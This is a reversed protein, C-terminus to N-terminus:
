VVDGRHPTNPGIRFNPDVRQQNETYELRELFHGLTNQADDILRTFDGEMARGKGPIQDGWAACELLLPAKFPMERFIRVFAEWDITGYPIPLHNDLTGGNDHLHFHVIREKMAEFHEAMNGVIHAHGTDFTLGVSPANVDAIIKMLQRGTTGPYGPPMNELALVVAHQEAHPALERLSDTLLALRREVAEPACKGGPHCVLIRAGLAQVKPMIERFQRITTRRLTDDPSSLDAPERFPGHVSHIAVGEAEFGERVDKLGRAEHNLLYKAGVEVATVRHSALLAATRRPTELGSACAAFQFPPMPPEPGLTATDPAPPQTPSRPDPIQPPYHDLMFPLPVLM